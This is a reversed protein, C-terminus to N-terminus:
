HEPAASEPKLDPDPVIKTINAVAIPDSAPFTMEIAEDLMADESDIIRSSSASSPLEAVPDSAPFTNEVARDLQDEERHAEDSCKEILVTKADAAATVQQVHGSSPKSPTTM